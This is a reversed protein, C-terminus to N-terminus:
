ADALDRLLKLVDARSACECNAPDKDCGDFHPEAEVRRIAEALVADAGIRAAEKEIALIHPGIYEGVLPLRTVDDVLARGAETEPASM